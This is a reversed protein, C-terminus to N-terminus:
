YKFVYVMYLSILRLKAQVIGSEFLGQVAQNGIGTGKSNSFSSLKKSEIATM